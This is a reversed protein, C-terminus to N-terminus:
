VVFNVVDIQLTLSWHCSNLDILNNNSDTIKINIFNINNSFLNTKFNGYNYYTIISYPNGNIPISVLLNGESANSHNINGTPLNSQICVCQKSLLNICNQSTLHSPSGGYSTSYLINSGFGILSFCTSLSPYFKFNEGSNQFFYKNTIISYTVTTNPLVSTLFSALQIANYNGHPILIGVPSTNSTTSYYLANNTSDVNYWTYPIVASIVSLLITHQSPLEITPLYFDCDSFSNLVNYKDAKQSNLHIQISELNM